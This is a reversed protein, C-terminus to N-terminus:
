KCVGACVLLQYADLMNHCRDPVDRTVVGRDIALWKTEDKTIQRKSVLKLEKSSKWAMGHIVGAARSCKMMDLMGHFRHKEFSEIVALDFIGWWQTKNVYTAWVDNIVLQVQLALSNLREETSRRQPTKIEGLMTVNGDVAVCFGTTNISPDFAIAIM